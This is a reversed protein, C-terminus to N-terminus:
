ESLDARKIRIFVILLCIISIILLIAMSINPDTDVFGNEQGTDAWSSFIIMFDAWISLYMIKDYLNALALSLVNSFFLFAFIGGSAYKYNDTMASFAIGINTFVFTMLFGIGILAYAFQYYDFTETPAGYLTGVVFIAIIINPLVAILAILGFLTLYKGLFYDMKKLPRSLYLSISNYRFDEALIPGGVIAPFLLLWIFSLIFFFMFNGSMLTFLVDIAWALILITIVWRNKLKWIFENNFITYIRGLRGQLRGEFKRYREQYIGM